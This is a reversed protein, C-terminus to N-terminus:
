FDAVHDLLEASLVVLDWLLSAILPFSPELGKRGSLGRSLFYELSTSLLEEPILRYRLSDYLPMQCSGHALFNALGKAPLALSGLELRRLAADCTYPWLALPWNQPLGPVGLLLDDM